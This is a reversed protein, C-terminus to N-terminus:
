AFYSLARSSFYDSAYEGAFDSAIVVALKKAMLQPSNDNKLVFKNIAYAAGAGATIEAVRKSLTAGSAGIASIDPLFVPVNTDFMGVLFLAGGVSAGFYLSSNMNPNMLVMKDLAVATAAAVLPKVYGSM